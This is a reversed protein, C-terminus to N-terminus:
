FSKFKEAEVKKPQPPQAMPSNASDGAKAELHWYYGKKGATDVWSHKCVCGCTGQPRSAGLQSDSVRLIFMYREFLVIKHLLNLESLSLFIKKLSLM